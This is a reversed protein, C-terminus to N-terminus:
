KQEARTAFVRRGGGFLVDFDSPFLDTGPRTMPVLLELRERDLVERPAHAPLRLVLRRRSRAAKVHGGVAAIAPTGEGLDGIHLANGLVDCVDGFQRM